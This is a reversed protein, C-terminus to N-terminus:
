DVAVWKGAATVMTFLFPAAAQIAKNRELTTAREDLTTAREDMTLKLIQCASCSIRGTSSTRQVTLQTFSAPARTRTRTRTRTRARM